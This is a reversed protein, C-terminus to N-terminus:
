LLFGSAFVDKIATKIEKYTNLIDKLCMQTNMLIRELFRYSLKPKGKIVESSWIQEQNKNEKIKDGTEGVPDTNCLFIRSKM